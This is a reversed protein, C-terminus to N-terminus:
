RAQWDFSIRRNLARGQATSNDAIPQSEGFGVSRLGDAPVGREVMFAAIAQARAESLAQNNEDTGQADTHGGIEITLDDSVCALAIGTLRELLEVSGSAIRASATEFNIQSGELADTAQAACQDALSGTSAPRARLDAITDDRAAVTETLDAVQGELDTLQGELGAVTSDSAQSAATLAAIQAVSGAVSGDLDSVQASLGDITTDRDAVAGNLRDIEQDRDAVLATLGDVEQDREAVTGTLGAIEQDRDAVTGTLGAIEQDREAVTGTLGAIQQDREAVTGTLGAIQQDREAVTGTLGAIEQDREAVVGSLDEFTGDRADLEARLDAVSQETTASLGAVQDNLGVITADRDEVAGTLGAITEDRDAVQGSLDEIVANAADLEAGLAVVQEDTSGLAAQRNQLETELAAILAAGESVEGTLDAITQDKEDIMATAAAIQANLDVANAESETLGSKLAALEDSLADREGTLTSTEGELGTVTEELEGIRADRNAVGLTLRDVEASLDLTENPSAIFTSWGERELAEVAAGEPGADANGSLTYGGAAAALTGTTLGALQGIGFRAEDQWAAEPGSVVLQDDISGDTAAEAEAVLAARVDDNPVTGRLSIGDASKIAKVYGGDAQLTLGDIPGLAGYTMDATTLYADETAGDYVVGSLTVHRGDVAVEVDKAGSSTLDDSVRATIDDEIDESKFWLASYFTLATVGLVLVILLNRM